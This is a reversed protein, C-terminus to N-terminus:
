PLVEERSAFDYSALQHLRKPAMPDSGTSGPPPPDSVQFYLSVHVPFADARLGLQRVAHRATFVRQLVFEDSLLNSAFKSHRFGPMKQWWPLDAVKPFEFVHRMGRRDVVESELSITERLPDPSFMAWAQWLGLPVMYNVLAPMVRQKLPSNPTLWIVTATVHFIVFASILLRWATWRWVV